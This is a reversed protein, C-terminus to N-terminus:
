VLLLNGIQTKKITNQNDKIINCIYAYADDIQEFTVGGTILISGSEFIAITVKKCNGNGSGNNKGFCNGTCNCVGNKNKNDTNWYYELKVGQYVSPQFSSKNDYKANILISHLEKRKVCFRETCAADNYVKFDSNIMRVKFNSYILRSTPNTDNYNTIIIKPDVEAFIKKINDIIKEIIIKPHELDRIGTMQINGNKFIKINPYYDEAFKYLVTIQNDFRNKSNEKTKRKKKPNEGRTVEDKEKLFQIWVFSQDKKQIEINNFLISLDLNIDDGIDANCTITSVRYPTFVLQSETSM